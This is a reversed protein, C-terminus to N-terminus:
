NDNKLLNSIYSVNQIILSRQEDTIEQLDFDVKEKVKGGPSVEPFEDDWILYYKNFLGSQFASSSDNSIIFPHWKKAIELDWLGSGLWLLHAPKKPQIFDELIKMCVIRNLTIEDSDTISQFSKPVSLISIWIMDIDKHDEAWKYSNVYDLPNDAQVVFALKVDVELENRLSLFENFAKETAIRDYLFDPAFVYTAWILEAKLLLSTPNEPEDNEFLWNDLYIEKWSERFKIVEQAYENNCKEDLLHSLVLIFDSKSGIEPHNIFKTPTIFCHKM